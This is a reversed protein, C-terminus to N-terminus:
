SNYSQILKNLFTDSVRIAAAIDQLDVDEAPNHSIGKFCKVFLMAVPAIESVPVADHGAGSVLEVMEYGSEKVSESLLKNMREDCSAPKTRQILNWELVIERKKCIDEVMDKI